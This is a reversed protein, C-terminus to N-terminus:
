PTLTDGNISVGCQPRDPKPYPLSKLGLRKAKAKGSKSLAKWYLHKGQDYHPQIDWAPHLVKVREARDSKYVQTCARSPKFVGNIILGDRYPKRTGHYDMSAAQYIGGHHGHQIDTYSILLDHDRQRLPKYAISLLRTLPVIYSDSRVLRALEVVRESWTASPPRFVAAAVAPGFDGFLGGEVHFTLVLISGGIHRGSYHYEETLAKADAKEGIRYFLGGAEIMGEPRRSKDRDM